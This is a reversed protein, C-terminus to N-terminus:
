PPDKRENWKREESQYWEIWGEVQAKCAQYRSYNEAIVKAADSAKVTSAEDVAFGPAEPLAEGTAAADHVRVWGRTLCNASDAAETVYVPVERIIERNITQIEVQRQALKRNAEEKRRSAELVWEAVEARRREHAAEVEAKLASLKGEAEAEGYTCGKVFAGAILILTIVLYSALVNM